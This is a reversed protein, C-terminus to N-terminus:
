VARMVRRADTIELPACCRLPPAAASASRRLAAAARGSHGNHVEGVGAACVVAMVAVFLAIVRMAAFDTAFSVCLFRIRQM